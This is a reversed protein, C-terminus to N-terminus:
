EDANPNLESPRVNHGFIEISGDNIDYLFGEYSGDSEMHAILPEDGNAISIYDAMLTGFWVAFVATLLFVVAAAARKLVPPLSAGRHKDSIRLSIQSAAALVTLSVLCAAALAVWQAASLPVLYFMDPFLMCAGVFLAALVALMVGRRFTLPRCTIYLACLCVAGTLMVSMASMQEAPVSLVNRCILLLIIGVTVAIGCPFARRLVNGLFGGKVRDYNPELALLFSPIGIALASILTMQIPRFPYAEPVFLFLVALLFSFVTKGLFLSASRQINNICRRGEAVVLPMSAFDSDVLVLQSVNRAADSGSQMAVSCDAARLAAVDNVGDGTMAVKHGAAQMAKILALKQQPTVRGFVKYREAAAPIDEDAVASLDIYNDAGELGARKAVGSVTVPDTSILLPECSLNYM